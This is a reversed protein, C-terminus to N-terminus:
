INSKNVVGTGIIINVTKIEYIIFQLLQLIFNLPCLTCCRISVFLALPQGHLLIFQDTCKLIGFRSQFLLLGLDEICLVFDLVHSLLKFTTQSFLVLVKLSCPLDGQAM